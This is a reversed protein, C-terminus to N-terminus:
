MLFVCTCVKAAERVPETGISYRKFAPLIRNSLVQQMRSFNADIDQLQSVSRDQRQFGDLVRVQLKLTILQDIQDIQDNVSATTDLGTVNISAPDTSPKWRPPNEPIPKLEKTNTPM